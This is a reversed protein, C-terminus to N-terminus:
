QSTTLRRPEGDGEKEKESEGEAKPAEVEEQPHPKPKPSEPPLKLEGEIDRLSSKFERIGRGLSSGIEPIRKAGFLLLIVTFILILEWMSLGGFM